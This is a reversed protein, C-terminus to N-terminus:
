GRGKRLEKRKKEKRKPCVTALIFCIKQFKTLPQEMCARMM